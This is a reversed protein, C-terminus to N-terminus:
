LMYVLKVRFHLNNFFAALHFFPNWFCDNASKLNTDKFIEYIGCSFM